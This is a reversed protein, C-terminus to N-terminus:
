ITTKKFEYQKIIDDIKLNHYKKSFEYLKVWNSNEDKKNRRLIKLNHWGVKEGWDNTTRVSFVNTEQILHRNNKLAILLEESILRTFIETYRKNFIQSEYHYLVHICDNLFCFLDTGSFRYVVDAQNSGLILADRWEDRYENHFDKGDCEIGIKKGKFEILFDLRFRGGNTTVCWQCNLVVESNLHKELQTIFHYELPSEIKSYDVRTRQQYGFNKPKNLEENNLPIEFDGGAKKCLYKENSFDSFYSDLLNSMKFHELIEDKKVIM